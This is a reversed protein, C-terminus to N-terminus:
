CDALHPRYLAELRLLELAAARATARAMPAALSREGLARVVAGLRVPERQHELALLAQALPGNELKLPERRRVQLALSEVRERDRLNRREIRLSAEPNWALPEDDRANADLPARPANGPLALVLELSPRWALEDVLAFRRAAPLRAIRERLPGAPVLSEADWDAPEAWRLFELGARECLAFLGPVDYSTEHVNLYRDVFEVDGITRQDSWPGHMLPASEVGAVLARGVRLREELPLERPAVADIARVLRHLSERGRRGYVMLSLVGHPALVNALRRLGVEPDALHHVVGSSLVVDFGGPPVDLGALTMLDVEALRVNALGRRAVEARAHELAPGCLDIGLFDVDPQLAAAGILGVGRGCGADLVTLPRGAPRGREGYSLLLRADTAQRFTPAGAPYPFASYMARVAETIADM